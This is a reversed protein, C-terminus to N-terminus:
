WCCTGLLERLIRELRVIILENASVCHQQGQDSYSYSQMCRRVPFDHLTLPLSHTLQTAARPDFLRTLWAKVALALLIGYDTPRLSANQVRDAQRRPMSNANITQAAGMGGHM